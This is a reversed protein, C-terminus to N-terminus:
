GYGNDYPRYKDPGRIRTRMENDGKHAKARNQIGYLAECIRLM